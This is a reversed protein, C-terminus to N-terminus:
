ATRATMMRRKITGRYHSRAVM